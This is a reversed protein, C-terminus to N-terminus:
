EVAKEEKQQKVLENLVKKMFSVGQSHKSFHYTKTTADYENKAEPNPIEVNVECGSDGLQIGVYKLNM